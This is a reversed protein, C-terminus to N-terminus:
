VIPLASVIAHPRLAAARALLTRQYNLATVLLVADSFDQVRRAAWIPTPVNVYFIGDKKEDDELIARLAPAPHGFHYFLAPLLNGGGFGYLPLAGFSSLVNKTVRLHDRFLCLRDRFRPASPPVDVLVEETTGRCFAMLITGWGVSSHESAVIRGGSAAVLRRLSTESFYHMTHHSIQDFRLRDVLVERDAVEVVFLTQPGAIQMLQRLVGAPDVLYELTQRFLIFDPPTPCLAALDIQEIFNGVVRLTTDELSTREVGTWPDKEHRWIPDIGIRLSARGRLQELLSLDNCGIELVCGNMPRVREMFDLMRKIGALNLPSGSTHFGYSSAYLMEQDVGFTLQAHDCASCFVVQQDARWSRSEDVRTAHLGTMPYAPLDLLVERQTSRCVTCCQLIGGPLGHSLFAQM